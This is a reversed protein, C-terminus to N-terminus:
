LDIVFWTVGVCVMLLGTHNRPRRLAAVVGVALFAVGAAVHVANAPASDAGDSGIIAAVTLGASVAGITALATVAAIEGRRREVGASTAVNM